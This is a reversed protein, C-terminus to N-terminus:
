GGARRARRKKVVALNRFLRKTLEDKSARRPRPGTRQAYGGISPRPHRAARLALEPDFGSGDSGGEGTDIRGTEAFELVLGELRVKAVAHAEDYLGAFGADRRRLRYAAREDMGANRCAAAANGSAAYHDLFIARKVKTWGDRRVRRRQPGNKGNSVHEDPEDHGEPRDQEEPVEM